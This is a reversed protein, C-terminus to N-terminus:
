LTPKFCFMGDGTRNRNCLSINNGPQKFKLRVDDIAFMTYAPTLPESSQGQVREVRCDMVAKYWCSMLMILLTFNELFFERLCSPPTCRIWSIMGTKHQSWSIGLRRQHEVAFSEDFYDIVFCFPHWSAKNAESLFFGWRGLMVRGASGVPWIQSTWRIQMLRCRMCSPTDILRHKKVSSHQFPIRFTRGIDFYLWRHLNASLREIGFREMIEQELTAQCLENTGRDIICEFFPEPWRNGVNGTRIRYTPHCDSKSDVLVDYAGRIRRAAYVMADYAHTAYITIDRLSTHHSKRSAPRIDKAPSSSLSLHRYRWVHNRASHRDATLPMSTAAWKRWPHALGLRETAIRLCHFSRRFILKLCRKGPGAVPKFWIERTETFCLYLTSYIRRIGPGCWSNHHIQRFVPSTVDFFTM